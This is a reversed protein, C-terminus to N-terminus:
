FNFVFYDFGDHVCTHVCECLCVVLRCKHTHRFTLSMVTLDMVCVLMCRVQVQTHRIM